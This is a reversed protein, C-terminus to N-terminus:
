EVEDIIGNTALKLLPGFTEGNDTSISSIPESSTANAAREWWTVFMNDGAANVEANLSDIRPTNSLNIKDGFTAGSDNPARFFVEGDNAHTNDDFWVIYVNNGSTAVPAKRPEPDPDV